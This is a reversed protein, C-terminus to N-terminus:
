NAGTVIFPAWFFPHSFEKRVSLASERMAEAPLRGSQLGRYFGQMLLATSEDSVKWLSSVVTDAGALLFTRTLGTVEDGQQLKGLGTECASLVVLHAQLKMETLEYLSLRSPQHPAPSTLIASFLPSQEDLIGHTALHVEQYRRLAAVVQDHTFNKEFADVAKPYIKAIGAAEKLTGPLPAMGDVSTNGLAGLFLDDKLKQQVPLFQLTAASPLYSISFREVLPHGATIPLVQFPLYSLYGAPVILLHHIDGPLKELVPRLVAASVSELLPDLDSGSEPDALMSRLQLLDQRLKKPDAKWTVQQTDARTAVFATLSDTLLSYEVLATSPPLHKQTDGLGPSSISVAQGARSNELAAQQRALTFRSELEQLQDRLVSPDRGSGRVFAQAQPSLQLRLSIIQNELMRLKAVQPTANGSQLRRGQFMELFTRAKSRELYDWAEAKRGSQSLLAILRQYLEQVRSNDMFARRQDEQSFGTRIEELRAVAKKYQDIAAPIDGKSEALLGQTFRVRWQADAFEAAQAEQEVVKLDQTALQEAEPLSSGPATALFRAYELRATMEWNRNREDRYAQVTEEYLRKAESPQEGVSKELRAWQLLVDARDFKAPNKPDTKLAQQLIDRATDPDDDLESLRAKGLLAQAYHRDQNARVSMEPIGDTFRIMEDYCHRAKSIERVNTYADGLSELTQLYYSDQVTRESLRAAPPISKQLNLAEELSAIEHSTSNAARYSVALSQLTEIQGPINATKRFEELRALDERLLGDFDGAMRRRMRIALQAFPSVSFPLSPFEKDIRGALSTADQYSLSQMSALVCTMLQSAVEYSFDEAKPQGKVRDLAEHVFSLVDDYKETEIAVDSQALLARAQFYPTASRAQQQFQDLDARAAGVKHGALDARILDSWLNAAHDSTPDNMVKQAQRYQQIGEDLRGLSVLDQAIYQYPIYLTATQGSRQQLELAKRSVALAAVYDEEHNRYYINQANAYVAARMFDGRSEYLEILADLARHLNVWDDATATTAQGKAMVASLVSAARAIGYGVFLGADQQPQFKLQSLLQQGAQVLADNSSTQDAQARLAGSCFILLSIALLSFRIM